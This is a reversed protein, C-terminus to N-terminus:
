HAHRAGLHGQRAPAGARALSQELEGIARNGKGVYNLLQWEAFVASPWTAEKVEVVELTTGNLVAIDALGGIGFIESLIQPEIVTDSRGPAPETRWPAASGGPVDLEQEVKGLRRADRALSDQVSKEAVLTAEPLALLHLCSPYRQLVPLAATQQVVHALEHALLPRNSASQGDGFVINRGVTYALAGVSRASVVASAGTHVRVRSFDHGFRPEFFARTHADLPQGPLRLVEHVVPPVATQGLSM